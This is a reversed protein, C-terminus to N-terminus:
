FRATYSVGLMGKKLDMLAADVALEKSLAIRVGLNINNGDFEGMLTTPPISAGRGPRSVSVTNLEKSVGLLIGSDTGVGFHGRIGLDPFQKSVVGYLNPDSGGRLPAQLGFAIGPRGKAEPLLKYKGSIYFDNYYGASISTLGMELDPTLAMNFTLFHVSSWYHYGADFQGSPLVDANPVNILGTPGMITPAALAPAALVMLGLVMMTVARFFKHGFFRAM